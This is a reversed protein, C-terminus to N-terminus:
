FGRSRLWEVIQDIAGRRAGSLYHDVGPLELYTRDQAGSADFIATAQRLRIETDATPHVVITPQTVAPLNTAVQAPSSLGSWTSLWGRATMVRALGGFGSNAIFPDPWAFITGLARDDPDISLDLYAPDALTRHILMHPFHVARRRADLWEGSGHELTKAQQRWRDREVDTAKAREDIRAVRARQAVRYGSVWSPHYSCPQPWTRYGNIPDYMDLAPDRSFPDDEDTVSPDIVQLMFVGEGPHAALAIFGDCIGVPDEAEAVALSMLSGGGSNGLLVVNAFGRARLQAVMARVDAAATEHVCDTDNNAYRTGFGCVAFGAAALLPCAYHIAFDARPHALAIVTSPQPRGVPPLWLIGRSVGGDPAVAVIPERRSTQAPEDGAEPWFGLFPRAGRGSFPDDPSVTAAVDAM